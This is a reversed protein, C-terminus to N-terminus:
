LRPSCCRFSFSKNCHPEYEPFGESTDAPSLRSMGVSQGATCPPCSTSCVWCEGWHKTRVWNHRLQGMVHWLILLPCVTVESAPLVAIIELYRSSCCRPIRANSQSCARAAHWWWAARTTRRGRAGQSVARALGQKEWEDSPFSIQSGHWYFYIM